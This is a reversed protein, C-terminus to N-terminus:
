KGRKDEISDEVAKIIDEVCNNWTRRCADAFFCDQKLGNDKFMKQLKVWDEKTPETFIDRPYPNGQLCQDLM